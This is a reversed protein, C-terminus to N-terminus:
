KYIYYIFNMESGFVIFNLICLIVYLVQIYFFIYKKFLITKSYINLYYYFIIDKKKHTCGNASYM